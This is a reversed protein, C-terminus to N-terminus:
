LRSGLNQTLLIQSYARTPFSPRRGAWQVNCFIPLNFLVKHSPVADEICRARSLFFLTLGKSLIKAKIKTGKHADQSNFVSYAASPLLFLFFSTHTGCSLM